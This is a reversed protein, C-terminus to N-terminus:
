GTALDMPTRAAPVGEALSVVGTLPQGRGASCSSSHRGALATGSAHASYPGATATTPYRQKSFEVFYGPTGM